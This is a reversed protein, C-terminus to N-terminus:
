TAAGSRDLGLEDAREVQRRARALVVASAATWVSGLAAGHLVSLDVAYWAFAAVAPVTALRFWELRSRRRELLSALSVLTVGMWLAVAARPGVEVTKRFYLMSMTLPVLLGFQALVYTQIGSTSSADHLPADLPRSPEARLDSPCWGPPMVWVRVKDWLGRTRRSRDWLQRWPHLHAQVPDFTEVPETIGYVVADDEPEFTGFLRDWVILTGAHNKDIYQPNRGHHVRHHSPTNFVWEFPGLRPVLQTHVWFQYLTNLSSCTAMVLPPLGVLALPIYFIWSFFPQFAGQRLAVAFNYDESQHHVVHAAWMVGVHHSTRHFWYYACDVGLFGFVWVALSGSSLEFLRFHGYVGLYGAFLAVRAFTAVVQQLVGCGMDAVAAPTRYVRRGMWWAALLEVTILGFFVPIAMAVYTWSGDRM